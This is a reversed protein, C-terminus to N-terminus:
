PTSRNTAFQWMRISGDRSGSALLGGKPSYTLTTIADPSGSLTRLPVGTAADRLVIEHRPGADTQRAEATAFQTGDPAFALAAIGYSHATQRKRLRGTEPEWLCVAGDNGATALASGRPSFAAAQVGNGHAAKSWLCRGTACDWVSISGPAVSGQSSGCGVALRSGDPSFALVSAEGPVELVRANQLSRADWIRVLREAGASALWRGDPSWAVQRIPRRQKFVSRYAGIASANVIVVEGAGFPSDTAAVLSSGDPSFAVSAVDGSAREPTLLLRNAGTEWVTVEGPTLSSDELRGTGVALRLGDRTFSLSNVSGTGAHFVAAGTLPPETLPRFAVSGCASLAAAAGIWRGAGPRTLRARWGMVGCALSLLATMVNVGPLGLPASAVALAAWFLAAAAWGGDTLRYTALTPTPLAGAMGGNVSATIPQAAQWSPPQPAVSAPFAATAVGANPHLLAPVASVRIPAPDPPLLSAAAVRRVPRADSAFSGPFPDRGGLLKTRECWPCESLHRGHRHQANSKCTVLSREADALANQWTLADPRASPHAHGDEFCRLFLQQLGPDLLEFPPAIAAPCFPGPRNGYAFQGCAIRSEYPPPDGEGRYRGAFPHTGEMLLQFILAALGFRDHEPTRDITAFRKGQLEPPTYEPKGVPCRFTTTGNPDRVQFSDTDVLTVLASRGVLINSENIDGIVYGRGHLARVAASLNRAARHLYLYDITRGTQRRVSPNYVNFLPRMETVLPMLYGAFGREGHAMSLLDVPWAIAIHAQERAPDEPPDALMVRLKRHQAETPRHYVKAALRRDAAVGYVRAEGGSGVLDAPTVGIREGNIHRQLRM